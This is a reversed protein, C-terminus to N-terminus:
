PMYVIGYKTRLARGRPKRKKPIPDRSYVKKKRSSKGRERYSKYSRESIAKKISSITQPSLWLEKAIQRYKGGAHIRDIAAARVILNHREYSTTLMLADFFKGPQSIKKWCATEWEKRSPFRSVSPLNFQIEKDGM